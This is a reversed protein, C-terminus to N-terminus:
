LKAKLTQKLHIFLPHFNQRIDLDLQDAISSKYTHTSLNRHEVAKLWTHGDQIIGIEFAKKIVSRPTSIEPFGESELYDKLTKWSLEFTMEFFQVIGAKHTVSPRSEKLADTLLELSKEFNQFRQTWRIDMNEM